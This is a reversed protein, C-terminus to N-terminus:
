GETFSVSHFQGKGPDEFARVVGYAFERDISRIKAIREFIRYAIKRWSAGICRLTFGAGTAFLDVGARGDGGSCVFDRHRVAQTEPAHKWVQVVHRMKQADQNMRAIRGIVRGAADKHAFILDFALDEVRTRCQLREDCFDPAFFGYGYLYESAM